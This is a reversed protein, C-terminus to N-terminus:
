RPAAASRHGRPEVARLPRHRRARAPRRGGPQRGASANKDGTRVIKLTHTTDSLGSVSWVTKKFQTKRAYGDYTKVLQGDLYIKALGNYPGPRSIWAVGTAKFTMSADGSRGVLTSFSGGSATTTRTTSWGSSLALAASGNEHLSPYAM